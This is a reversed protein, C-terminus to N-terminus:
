SKLLSDCFRIRIAEISGKMMVQEKQFIVLRNPVEETPKIGQKITAAYADVCRKASAQDPKEIVKHVELTFAKVKFMYALQKCNLKAEAFTHRGSSLDRAEKPLMFTESDPVKAAVLEDVFGQCRPPASLDQNDDVWYVKGEQTWALYLSSALSRFTARTDAVATTTTLVLALTVLHKM